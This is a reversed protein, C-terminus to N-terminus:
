FGAIPQLPGVGAALPTGRPTAGFPAINEVVCMHTALFTMAEGMRVEDFHTNTVDSDLMIHNLTNGARDVIVGGYNQMAYCIAFFAPSIMRQMHEPRSVMLYTFWADLDITKPIAFVAGMQINGEYTTAFDSDANTAPWAHIGPLAANPFALATTTISTDGTTLANLVCGVGAGSSTSTLNAADPTNGQTYQGVDSVFISTVGGNANTTLVTVRMPCPGKGGTIYMVDDPAYGTGATVISPRHIDYQSKYSRYSSTSGDATYQHTRLQRSAAVVALKHNIATKCPALIAAAASKSIAATPKAPLNALEWSRIIGALVAGGYARNGQSHGESVIESRSLFNPISYGYLNHASSRVTKYTGDANVDTLFHEMVITGDPTTMCVNRDGNWDSIKTTSVLSPHSSTRMFSPINTFTEGNNVSYSAPQAHPWGNYGVHYGSTWKKVPDSSFTQVIPLKSARYAVYYDERVVGTVPHPLLYAGAAGIGMNITEALGFSIQSTGWANTGRLNVDTKLNTSLTITNAVKDVSVVQTNPLFFGNTQEIGNAVGGIGYNTGYNASMPKLYNHCPVMGPLVKSADFVTLVNTGATGTANITGTTSNGSALPNATPVLLRCVATSTLPMNFFDDAAFPQMFPIRYNQAPATPSSACSVQVQASVNLINCTAPSVAAAFKLSFMLETSGLLNLDVMGAAGPLTTAATAAKLNSLKLVSSAVPTLALEFTFTTANADTFRKQARYNSNTRTRSFGVNLSLDPINSDAVVVIKLVAGKARGLANGPLKISGLQVESASANSLGAGMASSVFNAPQALDYLFLNPDAKGPYVKNFIAGDVTVVAGYDAVPGTFTETGLLGEFAAPADPLKSAFAAPMTNFVTLPGTFIAANKGGASSSLIASRTLVTASTITFLSTEKNGSSDEVAFPVGQDGIVLEGDTIAQALTRFGAVAGSVTISSSNAGTANFKLRDVFKMKSLSEPNIPKAASVYAAGTSAKNIQAVSEAKLIVHQMVSVGPSTNKQATSSGLLKHNQIVGAASSKNVQSTNSATLTHRVGPTVSGYQSANVQATSQAVLRHRQTAPGASSANPQASGAGVLKHRQLVASASSTNSSSASGSAIKHRQVVGASSAANSQRSSQATLTHRQATEAFAPFYDPEEFIQNPNASFSMIQEASWEGQIRGCLVMDSAAYWYTQEIFTGILLRSAGVTEAAIMQTAKLVGDRWLEIRDARRVVALVCLVDPALVELASMTKGWDAPRVVAGWTDLPAGNRRSGLHQMLGTTNNSSGLLFGAEASNGAGNKTANPYGVWFEVYPDLGIAPLVATALYHARRLSDAIGQGTVRKPAPPGVITLPVGTVLNTPNAGSIIALAGSTLGSGRKLRILGQPQYRMEDM